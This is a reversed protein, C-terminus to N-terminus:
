GRAVGAWRCGLRVAAAELRRVLQARDKQIKAKVGMGEVEPCDLEAYLEPGIKYTSEPEHPGAMFVYDPRISVPNVDTLVVRTVPHTSFLKRGQEHFQALSLAVTHLFGARWTFRGVGYLGGWDGARERFLRGLRTGLEDYRECAAFDAGGGSDQWTARWERFGPHIRVLDAVLPPTAEYEISGTIFEAREPEGNEALWDAYVGRAILDDPRELINRLLREREEM